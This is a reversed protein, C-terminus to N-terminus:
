RVGWLRVTGDLSVSALIRGDPSFAVGTVWMTHGAVSALKEGNGADLIQITGDVMGVALILSDPSWAMSDQTNTAWGLGLGGVITQEYLLNWDTTQWVLIHPNRDEFGSMQVALLTGDPSYAM